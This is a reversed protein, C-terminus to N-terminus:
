PSSAKRIADDLERIQREMKGIHWKLQSIEMHEPDEMQQKLKALEEDNSLLFRDKRKQYAPKQGMTRKFDDLMKEYRKKAEAKAKKEVEEADEGSRAIVSVARKLPSRPKGRPESPTVVIDLELIAKRPPVHVKGAFPIHRLPIRLDSLRELTQGDEMMSVTFRLSGLRQRSVAIPFVFERGNQEAGNFECSIAFEPAEIALENEGPEPLGVALVKAWIYVVRTDIGVPPPPPVLGSDFPRDEDNAYEAPVTATQDDFVESALERFAGGIDWGKVASTEFYAWSKGDAFDRVSAESLVRENVLDAKTGILVTSFEQREALAAITPTLVNLGNRDTLDVLLLAGKASPDLEPASGVPATVEWLRVPVQGTQLSIACPKSPADSLVTDYSGWILRNLFSSKGSKSAGIVLLEASFPGLDADEMSFSVRGSPSSQRPVFSYQFEEEEEM